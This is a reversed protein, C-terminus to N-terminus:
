KPPSRAGGNGEVLHHGVLELQPAGVAKLGMAMGSQQAHNLRLNEPGTPEDL